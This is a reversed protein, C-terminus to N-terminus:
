WRVQTRWAESNLISFQWPALVDPENGARCRLDHTPSPAESYACQCPRQVFHHPAHTATM